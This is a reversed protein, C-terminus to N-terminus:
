RECGIRKTRRQPDGRPEPQGGPARRLEGVKLICHTSETGNILKPPGLNYAPKMFRSASRDRFQHVGEGERNHSTTSTVVEGAYQQFVTRIREVQETPIRWKKKKEVRDEAYQKDVGQAHWFPHALVDNWSPLGPGVPKTENAGDAVAADRHKEVTSYMFSGPKPLLLSTPRPLLYEYQRSDCSTRANFKGQVRTIGCLQIIPPLILNVAQVLSDTLSLSPPNAAALESGASTGESAKAAAALTAPVGPANLILKLTLINGAAHVGHDTRTSRQLAV